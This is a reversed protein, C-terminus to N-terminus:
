NDSGFFGSIVHRIEEESLADYFYNHRTAPRRRWKFYEDRGTSNVFRGFDIAFQTPIDVVVREPDQSLPWEEVPNWPFLEVHFKVPHNERILQFVHAEEENRAAADESLIYSLPYAFDQYGGHVDGVGTDGQSTRLTIIPDFYNLSLTTGNLPVTLYPKKQLVDDSELSLVILASERPSSVVSAFLAQYYAEKLQDWVLAESNKDLDVETQFDISNVWTSGVRLHLLKMKERLVETASLLSSFSDKLSLQPFHLPVPRQTPHQAHVRDKPLSLGEVRYDSLFISVENHRDVRVIAPEQIPLGWQPLGMLQVRELAVVCLQTEQGVVLTSMLFLGLFSLVSRM